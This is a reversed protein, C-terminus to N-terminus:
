SLAGLFNASSKYEWSFGPLDLHGGPFADIRPLKPINGDLALALYKDSLLLMLKNDIFGNLHGELDEWTIGEDKQETRIRSLLAKPSIAESCARYLVAALGQFSHTRTVAVPRTDIIRLCDQRDVTVLLPRGRMGWFGAAWEHICSEVERQGPLMQLPDRGIPKKLHWTTKDEFFYALEMLREDDVPYVYAYCPSPVLQLGFHEQRNFYPSFRDYRIKTIAQPPQLHYLLPFFSAMETYWHDSEGPAGFLVNWSVRIGQERCWKLLQINQIADVGKDILKLFKDHLSEIGPQIWKVGAKALKEVHSKKLNSKTEFFISYPKSTECLQPLVTDIYHMDLINDVIEFDYVRYRDALESFEGMVRAPSKSRFAMGEGNLGCFTCHHKAGWWCGRSTEMLLGPKIVRRLGSADVAKFYLEYEPVPVTDMERIVARPVTLPSKTARRAQGGCLVGAPFPGDEATRRGTLLRTILDSFLDEAEGSVIYDVWPATKLLALGMQTECNAGGMMTIVGPDSEKIQRLLALSACNQQFTSTCGVIRPSLALVQQTLTAIFQTSKGRVEMIMEKIDPQMDRFLEFFADPDPSFEPFAAPAFTWEGLLDENSTLEIFYYSGVGIYDAFLLNAYISTYTRRDRKLYAELIGLALSPRGLGAYPMNLLCVDM